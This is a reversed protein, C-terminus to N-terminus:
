DKWRSKVWSDEFRRSVEPRANAIDSITVIGVLEDEALVPLKKIKNKKMITIAKDINDLPSITKIYPTMIEKIMTTKPDIKIVKELLDRETVIGVCQNKDIVILSGVKFDRYKKCADLVSQNNNITVVNRTMIEKIFM